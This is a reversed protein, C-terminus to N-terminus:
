KRAIRMQEWMALTKRHNNRENELMKHMEEIITLLTEPPTEKTIPEGLWTLIM